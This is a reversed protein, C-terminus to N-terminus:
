LDDSPVLMHLRVLAVLDVISQPTNVYDAAGLIGGPYVTAEGDMLIQDPLRVLPMGKCREALSTRMRVMSSHHVTFAHTTHSQLSVSTCVCCAFLRCIATSIFNPQAIIRPAAKPFAPASSSLSSPLPLSLFANFTVPQGFSPRLPRLILSDFLWRRACAVRAQCRNSSVRRRVEPASSVTGDGLADHRARGSLAPVTPPLCQVNQQVDAYTRSSSCRSLINTSSLQMVAAKLELWTSTPRVASM